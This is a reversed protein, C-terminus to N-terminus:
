SFHEMEKPYGAIICLGPARRLVEHGEVLSDIAEQGYDNEGGRLKWGMPKM